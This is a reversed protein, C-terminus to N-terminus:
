ALEEVTVAGVLDRGVTVLQAFFDNRDIKRERLLGELQLGEPLVGDFFPPFSGFTYVQQSAPMTLSVPPGQYGVEYTFTYEKGKTIERLIGARLGNVCVSASRM